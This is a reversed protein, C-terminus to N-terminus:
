AVHLEYNFFRTANSKKVRVCKIQELPFIVPSIGDEGVGALVERDFISDLKASVVVGIKNDGRVVDMLSTDLRLDLKGTAKDRHVLANASGVLEVKLKDGFKITTVM